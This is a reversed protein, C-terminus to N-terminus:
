QEHGKPWMQQASVYADKSYQIRLMEKTLKMGNKNCELEANLKGSRM